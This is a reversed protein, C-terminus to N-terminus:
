AGGEAADWVFDLLPRADEGMQVVDAAFDPTMLAEDDVERTVLYHKWRLVDALDEDDKYQSFGRPM